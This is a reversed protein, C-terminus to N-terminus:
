FNNKRFIFINFFIKGYHPSNIPALEIKNSNNVCRKCVVM